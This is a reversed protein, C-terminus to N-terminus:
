TTNGMACRWFSQGDKERGRCRGPKLACESGVVGRAKRGAGEGLTHKLAYSPRAAVM